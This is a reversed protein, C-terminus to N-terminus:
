RFDVESLTLIFSRTNIDSSSDYFTHDILSAPEIALNSWFLNIRARFLDNKVVYKLGWDEM